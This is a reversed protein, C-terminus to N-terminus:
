PILGVVNGNFCNKGIHTFFCGGFFHRFYNARFREQIFTYAFDLDGKRQFIKWEDEPIIESLLATMRQKTLVDTGIETLSGHIRIKPKQGEELHLDSGKQGILLNFYQDILAM